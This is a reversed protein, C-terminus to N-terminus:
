EAELSLFQRCAPVLVATVMGSGNERGHGRAIANVTRASCGHERGDTYTRRAIIFYTRAIDVTRRALEKDDKIEAGLSLLIPNHRRPHGDEFWVPADSRKGIGSPRPKVPPPNALSLTSFSFPELKELVAVLREDYRRSLTRRRYFGIADAGCGADPDELAEVVVNLIGESALLFEERRTLEWLNIFLNPAGSALLNEARDIPSLLEPAQGAFKKYSASLKGSIRYVPGEKSLALPLEDRELLAETWKSAHLEALKLYHGEGTMRYALLCLNACRIHDPVNFQLDDTQRIGDAGFYLSRFLGTDWDFWEPVDPSWNGIHEVADVFQEVTIPDSPDLRWLTALFIEFHETGHHTDNMRWYGHRWLKSSDFHEKIRDRLDKMFDLAGVCRRLKIAPSWSTTFTAQDHGDTPSEYRYKETCERIWQFLENLFSECATRLDSSDQIVEEDTISHEPM